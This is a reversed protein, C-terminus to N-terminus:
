LSIIENRTYGSSKAYFFLTGKTSARQLFGESTPIGPVVDNDFTSMDLQLVPPYFTPRINDVNADILQPISAGFPDYLWYHNETTTQNGHQMILGTCGTIIYTDKKSKDFSINTEVVTVVSRLLYPDSEDNRSLQISDSVHVPYSNLHEFNSMTAPLQSFPIPNSVTRINRRQIRRNVYFILVEKSYIIKQDKPVLTKNETIWIVRNLSTTFDKPEDYQTDTFQPPIFVSIMPVATITIVPRYNFPAGTMSHGNHDNNRQFMNGPEHVSSYGMIPAITAITSTSIITPRLSFVSMLRRLISCEDQNYILDANDYINNRCQNITNLFDNFPTANYYHGNRLRLVTDWLRIQVNFRNRLDVIPSMIDCVVDNPDSVMDNYLLQDPEMLIPVKDRRSKVINGINSHLMHTEFICFKPIFMCALLPHIHNSGIHKDRSFTGTMAYTCCDTYMLSQMFVSRHTERNKEFNNIIEALVGMESSKIDFPEEYPIHIGLTKNIRSRFPLMSNNINSTQRQQIGGSLLFSLERQFEAYESDSWGNDKKYKLMKTLIEHLPRDGNHYKNYIKEAVHRAREKIREYKKTYIRLINDVIEEDNKYKKSLEIIDFPTIM